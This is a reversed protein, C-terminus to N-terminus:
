YGVSVYLINGVISEFARDHQYRESSFESLREGRCRWQLVSDFTEWLAPCLAVSRNVKIMSLM